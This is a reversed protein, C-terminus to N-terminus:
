SNIFICYLSVVGFFFLFNIEWEYNVRWWSPSYMNKSTDVEYPRDVQMKTVWLWLSQNNKDLFRLTDSTQSPMLTLVLDHNVVIMDSVHSIFSFRYIALFFVYVPSFLSVKNAICLFYCLQVDHGHQVWYVLLIHREPARLASYMVNHFQSLLAEFYLLYFEAGSALYWLIPLNYYSICHTEREEGGRSM